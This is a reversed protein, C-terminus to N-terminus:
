KGENVDEEKKTQNGVFDVFAEVAKSFADMEVCDALEDLSLDFNKDDKLGYYVLNLYGDTNLDSPNFGSIFNLGTAKEIERIQRWSYHFSYNKGKISTVHNEM